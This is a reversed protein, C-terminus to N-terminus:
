DLGSANFQIIGATSTDIFLPLRRMAIDFADHCETPDHITDAAVNLTRSCM